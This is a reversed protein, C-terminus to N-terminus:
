TLLSHRELTQSNGLPITNKEVIIGFIWNVTTEDLLLKNETTCPLNDYNPGHWGQVAHKIVFAKDYLEKPDPETTKVEDSPGSRIMDIVESGLAGLRKLSSISQVNRADDLELGSLQRIEIFNGPEHPIEISEITNGVIM